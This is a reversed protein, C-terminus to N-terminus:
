AKPLFRGASDRKQTKWNDNGSVSVEENAFVENGYEDIEDLGDDEVVNEEDYLPRTITGEKNIDVVEFECVRMKQGNCDTPIAVVDKPNVKVEVIVQTDCQHFGEAYVMQAVHFGRSCHADPDTDCDERNMSPKAGVNNNYTGTQWDVLNGDALRRVSRYGIFCGDATIPHGNVELFKYLDSKARPDPNLKCNEWFKLLPQFPLGMDAFDIVRNGLSDPLAETGVYVQGNDVGFLGSTHLKIRATVDITSIILAEDAKDKILELVKKVLVDQTLPITKTPHGSVKIILNSATKILSLM